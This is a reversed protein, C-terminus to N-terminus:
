AVQISGKKLAAILKERYEPSIRKRQRIGAVAIALQSQEVNHPDFLVVGEGHADILITSGAAALKERRNDWKERYNERNHDKQNPMYILRLHANYERVLGYKGLVIEDRCEDKMFRCRYEKAWLRLVAIAQERNM